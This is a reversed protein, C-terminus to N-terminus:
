FSIWVVSRLHMYFLFLGLTSSKDCPLEKFVVGLKGELVCTSGFLILWDQQQVYM